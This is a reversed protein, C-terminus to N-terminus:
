AFVSLLIKLEKTTLEPSCTFYFGQEHVLNAVPLNHNHSDAYKKFFPQNFINGGVIPRIEVKNHARAVVDELIEKSKCVLPVSFSSLVDIHDHRLPFFNDTKYIEKTLYKYHKNRLRVMKPLHKLQNNGLFGQIETPRLNYGLDYFTYLSYFHDVRHHTRLRSQHEPELHRDWGHARVIRLMGALERDATCVAGGEITSMHHGVFFSFTSALSYNGLKKGKYVSGLSECNDEIFIINEKKCFAAIKDIDHCFGLLNTLFLGELKHKKHVEKIARSSSNLTDLEIDIPIPVLGLQLLPMVNTAWTVASFGVKDGKKLRGLNMLANILALNASSGSNFFISDASQQYRAFNKEFKLCEPGFSLQNASEIFGTLARKTRKEDFFSSKTLKVM